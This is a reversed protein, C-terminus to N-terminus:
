QGAEAPLTLRYLAGPAHSSDLELRGAHNEVIARAIMLGIGMGSSPSTGGKGSDVVEVFIKDRDARARVHIHGGADATIANRLLNVLAQQLEVHQGTVSLTPTVETDIRVNAVAAEPQVVLVADTVLGQVDITSPTSSTASGFRRLRRVLDSLSESKRDILAAARQLEDRDLVPDHSMTALHRAEIALTTLPQSIEHIVAVSMARLTKLRDAQFLLRDRRAVEHSWDVQADAYGGALYGAVAICAVLMHLDIRDSPSLGAPTLFLVFAAVGAVTSWAAASGMRLGIWVACLLMPELRLGMGALWAVRAITIALIVLGAAEASRRAPFSRPKGPRKGEALRLIWLLPPAILLVGLLDGVCFMIIAALADIVSRLQTARQDFYAWPLSSLAAAMPAVAMAVALSLPSMGFTENARASIRRVLGIALGYALPPFVVSASFLLLPLPPKALNGLLGHVALETVALLLSLKAGYRWLLAFRIGAIPFWLSYILGQGWRAALSHLVIFAGGYALAILLLTFGRQRTVPDTPNMGCGSLVDRGSYLKM